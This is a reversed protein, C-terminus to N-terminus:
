DAPRALVQRRSARFFVPFESMIAGLETLEGSVDDFDCAEPRPATKPFQKRFRVHELEHTVRGLTDTFWEERDDGGIKKEGSNYRAPRSKWGIPFSSAGTAKSRRSSRPANRSTLASARPSRRTSLSAMPSTSGLRPARAFFNKSNQREGPMDMPPARRIRRCRAAFSTM